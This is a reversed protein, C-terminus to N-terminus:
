NYVHTFEDLWTNLQDISSPIGRAYVWQKLTQWM